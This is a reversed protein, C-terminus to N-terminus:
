RKVEDLRKVMLFKAMSDPFGEIRAREEFGCRRYFEPAQFSFTDLYIVAAGKARVEEELMQMLRTAVGQHRFSEDVWLQLVEVAAAWQRARVGGVIRGAADRAFCCRPQVASLDAAALNYLHLGADVADLDDSAPKDTYEWQLDAAMAEGGLFQAAGFPLGANRNSRMVTSASYQDIRYM